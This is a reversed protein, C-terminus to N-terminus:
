FLSYANACCEGVYFDGGVDTLHHCKGKCDDCVKDAEKEKGLEYLRDILNSAEVFLHRTHPSGDWIVNLANQADLAAQSRQIATYLTNM